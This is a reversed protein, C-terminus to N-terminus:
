VAPEVELASAGLRKILHFREVVYTEYMDRSIRAAQVHL